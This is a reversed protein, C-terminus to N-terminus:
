KYKLVVANPLLRGPGVKYGNYYLASSGGGDLNIGHQLGLAKMVYAVDPVTAGRVHMLYVDNDKVGIAGRYGRVDKMASNLAGENVVVNGNSVLGPFNVIGASMGGNDCGNANSCFRPSNGSFGAMARDNWFLKDANIWKGHQSSYVPFDYSNVKGSCSSYDPPCFYTGNIGAFGANEQVYTALPKVTCNNDCNGDNGTVTVVQVSGLNARVLSVVFSGRETAVTIRSYGGGPNNTAPASAAAVAVAQKRDEELKAAMLEEIKKDLETATTGLSDYEGAILKQLVSDLDDSYDDLVLGKQSYSTYKHNLDAYQDVASSWAENQLVAEDTSILTYAEALQENEIQLQQVQSQTAENAVEFGDVQEQLEKIQEDFNFSLLQERRQQSYVLLVALLGVVLLLMTERILEGRSIRKLLLKPIRKMGILM